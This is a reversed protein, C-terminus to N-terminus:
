QKMAGATLGSVFYRQLFIYTLVIPLSSLVVGTFLMPYNTVYEGQFGLLMVPLTKKSDDTIYILPNLLDNWYMVSLFIGASALPAALLPLFIRVYTQWHGAGDMKAAELVTKPLTRTFGTLILVAIPLTGAINVIILGLLSNTLNLSSVLEYLPLMNVQAPVMMGIVFFSFLVRGIWKNMQSIGFAIMSSFFLTFLVSFLTVIVSNTFYLMFPQDSLISQYTIFNLSDPLSFPSKFLQQTTKFTSFIIVSVPVLIAVAYFFLLGRKIIASLM